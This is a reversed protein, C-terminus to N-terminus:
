DRECVLAVEEVNDAADGVDEGPVADGMHDGVSEQVPESVKGIGTSTGEVPEVSVSDEWVTAEPASMTATRVGLMTVAEESERTEVICDKNFQVNLKSTSSIAEFRRWIVKPGSSPLSARPAMTPLVMKTIPKTSSMSRAANNTNPNVGRVNSSDVIRTCIGLMTAAGMAAMRWGVRVQATAKNYM